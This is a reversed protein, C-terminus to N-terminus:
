HTGKAVKHLEEIIEVDKTDFGLSGSPEYEEAEWDKIFEEYDDIYTGFAPDQEVLYIFEKMTEDDEQNWSVLSFGSGTWSNMVCVEIGNLLDYARKWRQIEEYSLTPDDFMIKIEEPTKGGTKLKAKFLKLAM